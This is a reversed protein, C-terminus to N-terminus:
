HWGQLPQQQQQQQQQQLGMCTADRTVMTVSRVASIEGAFGSASTM